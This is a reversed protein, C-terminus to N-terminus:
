IYVKKLNFIMIHLISKTNNIMEDFMEKAKDIPLNVLPDKYGDESQITFRIKTVNDLFLDVTYLNGRLDYGM